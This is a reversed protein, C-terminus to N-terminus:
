LSSRELEADVIERKQRRMNRVGPVVSRDTGLRGCAPVVGRDTGDWRCDVVATQRMGWTSFAHNGALGRFECRFYM